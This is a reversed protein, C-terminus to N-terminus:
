KNRKNNNPMIKYQISAYIVTLKATLHFQKMNEVLISESAIPM